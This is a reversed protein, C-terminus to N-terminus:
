AASRREAHSTVNVQNMRQLQDMRSRDAALKKEREQRTMSRASM